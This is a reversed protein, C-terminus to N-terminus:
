GTSMLGCVTPSRSTLLRAAVRDPAPLNWTEKNELSLEIFDRFSLLNCHTFSRMVHLQDLRLRQSGHLVHPNQITESEAFVHPREVTRATAANDAGKAIRLAYFYENPATFPFVLLELGDTVVGIAVVDEIKCAQRLRLLAMWRATLWCSSSQVRQFPPAMCAM